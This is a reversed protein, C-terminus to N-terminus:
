LHEIQDGPFLKPDREPSRDLERRSFTQVKGGRTLKVKSGAFDAPGGVASIASLLTLDASWPLRQPARVQGGVTVFRSQAAVNITATPRTFIKQEVLKKEIAGELESQTLGAARVLGGLPINVYGDGGVTFQQAFPLADEAPMGSLRLEFTDGPRFTASERNVPLAPLVEPVRDAKSEAGSEKGRASEAKASRGASQAVVPRPMAGLMFILAFLFAPIRFFHM